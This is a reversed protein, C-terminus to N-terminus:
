RLKGGSVSLSPVFAARGPSLQSGVHALCKVFYRVAMRPWLGGQSGVLSGFLEPIDNVDHEGCNVMMKQCVSIFSRSSFASHELKDWLKMHAGLAERTRTLYTNYDGNGFSSIQSMLEQGLTVCLFWWLQSKLGFPESVM